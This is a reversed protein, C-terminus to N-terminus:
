ISNELKASAGATVVEFPQPPLQNQQYLAEFRKLDKLFYTVNGGWRPSAAYIRNMKYPDTLGQNLYGERLGQSVTYIGNRWSRFYLAQNGYVGWGWANYGGPIFKGFTSEVGAIAPVLKWDLQYADAADVLDQAHFQLPSDHRQLYARLVEARQDFKRPEIDPQSFDRATEAAVKPSNLLFPLILILVILRKILM